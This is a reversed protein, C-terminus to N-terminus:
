FLIRGLRGKLVSDAALVGGMVSGLIGGGMASKSGALYLGRVSTVPGPRRGYTLSPTQASDFWCGDIAMTNREFTIPTFVDYSEVNSILDPFARRVAEVVVEAYSEKIRKYREGRRGGEEVGWRRQFDYPVAPVLIDLSTGGPPAMSEDQLSHVMMMWRMKAPDPYRDRVGLEEVIERDDYSPQVFISGCALGPDEVRKNMGLHIGFGTISVPWEDVKDLFARTFNERNVLRLFTRKTDADSAVVSTKVVARPTTEVQTVMGKETNVSTVEHGLMLTGGSEELCDCLADVLAQFGGVPFYAGDSYGKMMGIMALGSLEWPPSGLMPWPTAIVTRLREDTFFGYLVKELSPGRLVYSVLRPHLFPYFLGRSITAAGLPRRLIAPDMGKQVGAVMKFFRNINSTQPQFAEKLTEAYADIDSSVRIDHDPYVYRQFPEVKKFDVKLGLHEVVRRLAGDPGCGGVLHPMQFFYGNKKYAAAYGGPRVHREVVVVKLGEKALLAGCVLGGIGAGIVVADYYDGLIAPERRDGRPDM